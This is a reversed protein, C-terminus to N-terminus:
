WYFLDQSKHCTVVHVISTPPYSIHELKFQKLSLVYVLGKSSDKIATHEISYSYSKNIEEIVIKNLLVGRYRVGNPVLM